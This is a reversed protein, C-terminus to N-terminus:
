VAQSPKKEYDIIKKIGQELAVTPCWGTLKQLKDINAASAEYLGTQRSAKVKLSSFYKKLAAVAEKIAVFEGRGLNVVGSASKSEALRLLGEAM